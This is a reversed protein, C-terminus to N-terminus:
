NLSETQRAGREGTAAEALAYSLRARLREKWSSSRRRDGIGAARLGARVIRAAEAARACRPCHLSHERVLRAVLPDEEPGAPEARRAWHDSAVACIDDVNM